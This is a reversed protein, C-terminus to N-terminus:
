HLLNKYKAFAEIKKMYNCVEAGPVRNKFYRSDINIPLANYIHALSDVSLRSFTRM